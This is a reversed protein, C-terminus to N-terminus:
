PHYLAVGVTIGSGVTVFLVNHAQALQGTRVAAQLAAFPGATHVREFSEGARAVRDAPVEIARSLDDAFSAPAPSAVLLDIDIGRLGVARLFQSVAVAGCEACRAAYGEREHVHLVNRGPRVGPVRGGIARRVPTREWTVHTEFLGAFEPFTAFGFRSFGTGDSGGRSLLIAGGAPQFPFGSTGGSLRAPDTDSAVVMGLDISGSSLFGDIIHIATLVGSGGNDVDFSFTGHGGRVPPELNAGIDEQIMSALAPEGVNKERYIGVNVLFDLESAKRGSREFCLQAAEDALKIAGKGRLGGRSRIAAVSEIKTGM